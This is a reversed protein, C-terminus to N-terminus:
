LVCEGGDRAARYIADTLRALTLAERLGTRPPHGDAWAQVWDAVPGTMFHATSAPDHHLVESRVGRDPDARDLWVPATADFLHLRLAGRDGLLQWEARAPAATFEGREYVLRAGCAFRVLAAVHTEGDSGPAVRDTCGPAIGWTHAAVAVPQLQWGTLSFLLDLDYVGWNMLIGGGNLARSVRWAPPATTPRAGLPTTAWCHISRLTGIAGAAIAARAAAAHPMLSMRGSCCAVVRDGHVALLEAIDAAAPGMPKELLLHKGAHLARVALERRAVAPLALILGDIAPDALLTEPDAVARPIGNDRALAQAAALNVDCLAVVTCGPTALAESLHVKGVAGCGILAIRLTKDPHSGM